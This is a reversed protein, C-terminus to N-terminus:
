KEGEKLANVYCNYCCNQILPKGMWDTLSLTTLIEQGCRPCNTM